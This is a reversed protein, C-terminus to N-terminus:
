EMEFKESVPSLFDLAKSAALRIAEYLNRESREGTWVGMMGSSSRM